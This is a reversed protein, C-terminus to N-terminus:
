ICSIQSSIVKLDMVFLFVGTKVMIQKSLFQHNLVNVYGNWIMYIVQGDKQIVLADRRLISIIM